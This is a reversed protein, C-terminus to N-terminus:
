QRCDDRLNEVRIGEPKSTEDWTARLDHTSLIEWGYQNAIMLPLCRYPFKRDADDMWKREVRAPRIQATDGEHIQYATIKKRQLNICQVNPTHAKATTPRRHRHKAPQLRSKKKMVRVALLIIM